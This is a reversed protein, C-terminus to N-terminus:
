HYINLFWRQGCSFTELLMMTLTRTVSTNSAAIFGLGGARQSCLTNIGKFFKFLCFVLTLRAPSSEQDKQLEKMENEPHWGQASRYNEIM